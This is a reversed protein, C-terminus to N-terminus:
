LLPWLCIGVHIWVTSMCVSSVCVYVNPSGNYVVCVPDSVKPSMIYVSMSPSVCVHVRVPDLFLPYVSVVCVCVSVTSVWQILYSARSDVLPLKIWEHEVKMNHHFLLGSSVSLQVTFSFTTWTCIFFATGNVHFGTRWRGGILIDPRLNAHRSTEHDTEQHTWFELINTHRFLFFFITTGNLAINMMKHDYVTSKFHAQRTLLMNSSQPYCLLSVNIDTAQLMKMLHRSLGFNYKMQAEILLAKLFGDYNQLCTLNVRYFSSCRGKGELSLQHQHCCRDSFM